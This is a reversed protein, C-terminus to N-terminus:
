NRLVNFIKSIGLSKFPVRCAFSLSVLSKQLNSSKLTTANLDNKLKAIEKDAAERRELRQKSPVPSTLKTKESNPTTQPSSTSPWSWSKWERRRLRRRRSATCLSSCWVPQNLSQILSSSFFVIRMYYGCSKGKKAKHIQKTELGLTARSYSSNYM